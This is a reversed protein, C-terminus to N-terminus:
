ITMITKNFHGIELLILNNQIGGSRCQGVRVRELKRARALALLALEVISSEEESLFILFKAV